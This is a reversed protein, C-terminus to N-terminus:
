EICADSVQDFYKGTLSSGSLTIHKQLDYFQNFCQMRIRVKYINILIHMIKVKDPIILIKNIMYLFVASLSISKTQSRCPPPSIDLASVQQSIVLRNLPFEPVEQQDLIIIWFKNDRHIIELTICILSDDM